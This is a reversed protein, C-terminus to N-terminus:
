TLSIIFGCMCHMFMGRLPSHKVTTHTNKTVTDEDDGFSKSLQDLKDSLDPLQGALPSPAFVPKSATPRAPAVRKGDMVPELFTRRTPSSLRGVGSKTPNSLGSLGFDDTRTTLVYSTHSTTSTPSMSSIGPSGAMGVDFMSVGQRDAYRTRREPTLPSSMQNLLEKTPSISSKPTGMSDVVSKMSTMRISPAELPAGRRMASASTLSSGDM